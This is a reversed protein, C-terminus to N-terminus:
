SLESQTASADRNRDERTGQEAPYYGRRRGIEIFGFREYINIARQNSVRVELMISEFGITEAYQRLAALLQYAFGQKFLGLWRM